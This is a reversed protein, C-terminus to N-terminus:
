KSRRSAKTKRTRTKRAAKPKTKPETAGDSAPPTDDTVVPSVNSARKKRRSTKAVPEQIEWRGFKM